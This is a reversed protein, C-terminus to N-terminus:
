GQTSRLTPGFRRAVVYSYVEILMVYGLLAVALIAAKACITSM